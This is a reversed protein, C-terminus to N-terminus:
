GVARPFRGVQGLLAFLETPSQTIGTGGADAVQDRRDMAGANGYVFVPTMRDTERIREILRIGAEPDYGGPEARGMDSIVADFPARQLARLGEDTSTRQVVEVGMAQLQGAEYANNSPKDDVWLIRHLVEQPRQGTEHRGTQSALQHQLEATTKVVEDSFQQVTLENNGVRLSFARKELVHRIEPLLRWVVWAAFVPWALGTLARILDTAEDV